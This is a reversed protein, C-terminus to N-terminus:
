IWKHKSLLLFVALALVLLMGIIRIFRQFTLLENYEDSWQDHLAEGKEVSFPKASEAKLVTRLRWSEPCVVYTGVESASIIMKGDKNPRAM